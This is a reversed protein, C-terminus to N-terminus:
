ECAVGDGDRDMAERYGPQGRRLPAAGAARAASCNAFYTDGSGGSLSAPQDRRVPARPASSAAAPRHCHRDGTKRNNHCGSADLGGPHATAPGAIMLAAVGALAVHRSLM